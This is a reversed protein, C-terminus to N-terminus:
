VHRKHPGSVDFGAKKMEDRVVVSMLENRADHRLNSMEEHKSVLETLKALNLSCQLFATANDRLVVNNETLTQMMVANQQANHQLIMSNQQANHERNNKGDTSLHKLFSLLAILLVVSAPASVVASKLVEEM